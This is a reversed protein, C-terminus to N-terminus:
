IGGLLYLEDRNDNKFNYDQKTACALNSYKEAKAELTNPNLHKDNHRVM